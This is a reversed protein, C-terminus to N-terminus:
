MGWPNRIFGYPSGMLLGAANGGGMGDLAGTGCFRNMGGLAGYGDMGGYGATMPGIMRSGYGGGGFGGGGFGGGLAAMAQQIWFADNRRRSGFRRGRRGRGGTLMMSMALSQMINQLQQQSGTFYGNQFANQLDNNIWWIEEDYAGSGGYPSPYMSSLGNMDWANIMAM